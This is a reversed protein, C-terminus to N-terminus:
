YSNLYKMLLKEEIYEIKFIKIYIIDIIYISSNVGNINILIILNLFKINKGIISKIM